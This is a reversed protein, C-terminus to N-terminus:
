SWHVAAGAAAPGGCGAAMSWWLGASGAGAGSSGCDWDWDGGIEAADANVWADGYGASCGSRRGEGFGCRKRLGLVSVREREDEERVEMAEEEGGAGAVSAQSTTVGM